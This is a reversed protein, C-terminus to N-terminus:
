RVTGGITTSVPNTNNPGTVSITVNVPTADTIAWTGDKLTFGFVTRGPGPFIVDPLVVTGNDGFVVFVQNQAVNPNPPPPISATVSIRTGQSLPHGLPDVVKFTFSQSGTNPIDFSGPTLSDIRGEGTWLILVSDQVPTGNQGLTRAALYHYGDGYAVAASAGIPPPNGSILAVSGQGDPSTFVSPQIVGASTRFYVATGPAVPNSYVDGVLVSIPLTKGMVGLAPFNFQQAAITFHSQVPFGGNIVVQVPSSTITRGAVSASALIQVVGSRTGANLTTFAQGAANTTLTPPSIYEGGNPGNVSGFSLVVSHAADIPLGLSDRVEWKLVATEKGGVGYVSVTQPSAGLFAITQALGTGGVPPVVGGGTSNMTVNLFTVNGSRIQTVITTDRYGTKSYTLTVMATSDITFDVRYNGAADSTASQSGSSVTQAQVTVGSLAAGTYVDSLKGSVAGEGAAAQTSSDSKCGVLVAAFVAVATILLM